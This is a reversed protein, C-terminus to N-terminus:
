FNVKKLYSEGSVGAGDNSERATRGTSAYEVRKRTGFVRSRMRATENGALCKEAEYVLVAMAVKIRPGKANECMGERVSQKTPAKNNM